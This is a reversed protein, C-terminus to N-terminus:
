MIRHLLWNASLYAENLIKECTVHNVYSDDTTIINNFTKYYNKPSIQFNFSDEEKQYAFFMRFWFNM